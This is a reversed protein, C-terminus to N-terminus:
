IAVVNCLEKTDQFLFVHHQLVGGGIGEMSILFVWFVVNFVDSTYKNNFNDM